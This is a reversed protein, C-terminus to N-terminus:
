PTPTLPTLLLTPSAWCTSLSELLVRVWLAVPQRSCRNINDSDAEFGKITRREFRAHRNAPAHGFLNYALGFGSASRWAHVLVAAVIGGVIGDVGCGGDVCSSGVECADGGVGLPTSSSGSPSTSKTITRRLASATASKCASSTGAPPNHAIGIAAVASTQKSARPGWM